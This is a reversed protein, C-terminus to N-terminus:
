LISKVLLLNGVRGWFYASIKTYDSYFSVHYVFLYFNNFLKKVSPEIMSKILGSLM